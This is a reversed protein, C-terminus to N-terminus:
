GFLALKIVALVLLHVPYYAYFIWKNIQVGRNGRYFHVLLIDALAVIELMSSFATLVLVIGLMEAEKSVTRLFYATFIALIGAMDYDTGLVIAVLCCLVMNLMMLVWYKWTDVYNDRILEALILGIFGITLTFFVNQAGFYYLTGGVITQASLQLALDFPLESFVIFMALRGLYKRRDHTYYFGEVMLYIYLPFALRGIGRMIRYFIFVNHYLAADTILVLWSGVLAVAAHDILMTICAIIKLTNGTLEKKANM